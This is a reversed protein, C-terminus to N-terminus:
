GAATAIPCDQAVRSNAGGAAAWLREKGTEARLQELKRDLDRLDVAAHEVHVGRPVRPQPADDARRERRAEDRLELEGDAPAGGRDDVDDAFAARAVEGAVDCLRERERDDAVHQAHRLLVAELERAEGADGNGEAVGLEPREVVGKLGREVQDFVGLIELTCTTAPWGVVERTQEHLGLDVALPQALILGPAEELKQDRGADLRRAGGDRM